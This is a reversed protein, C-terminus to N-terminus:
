MVSRHGSSDGSVREGHRESVRCESVRRACGCPLLGARTSRRRGTWAGGTKLPIFMPASLEAHWTWRWRGFPRDTLEECLRSVVARDTRRHTSAAGRSLGEVAAPTGPNLLGKPRAEPQAAVASRRRQTRAHDGIRLQIRNTPTRIHTMVNYPAPAASMATGLYRFSVKLSHTTRGSRRGVRRWRPPPFLAPVGTRRAAACAMCSTGTRCWGVVRRLQRVAMQM